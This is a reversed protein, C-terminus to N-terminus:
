SIQMHLWQFAEQLCDFPDREWREQEVFGYAVGQHLCETIADSWHISGYGAPVLIENGDPLIQYDKFHVETVRSGYHHLTETLSLGAHEVHYLDLCLTVSAPLFQMLIDLKSTGNIQLYDNKTPHFSLHRGEQQLKEHIQILTDAYCKLSNTDTCDSPIRSLCLEDSNCARCLEYYYSRNADFDPFMEQVSVASLGNDKLASAIVTIPVASDIWQLQVIDCGMNKVKQFANRVQESSTLLPKFSSFQIGAIM